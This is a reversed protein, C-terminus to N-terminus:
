VNRHRAHRKRRDLKKYPPFDQFWYGCMFCNVGSIQGTEVTLNQRMIGIKAKCKPCIM